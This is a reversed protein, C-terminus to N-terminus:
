NGLLRNISSSLTEIKVLLNQLQATNSLVGESTSSAADALRITNKDLLALRSQISSDLTPDLYPRFAELALELDDIRLSHDNVEVGISSLKESLESLMQELSTIQTECDDVRLGLTAVKQVLPDLYQYELRITIAGGLILESELWDIHPIFKRCRGSSFTLKAQALSNLSIQPNSNLNHHRIVSSLSLPPLDIYSYLFNLIHLNGGWGIRQDGLLELNRSLPQLNKLRQAIPIESEFIDGGPYQAGLKKVTFLWEDLAEKFQSRYKVQDLDLLRKMESIISDTIDAVFENEKEQNEANLGVRYHYYIRVNNPSKGSFDDSAIFPAGNFSILIEILDGKDVSLPEITSEYSLHRFSTTSSTVRSHNM